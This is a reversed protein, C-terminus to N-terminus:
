SLITDFQFIFTLNLAFFYGHRKLLSNELRLVGNSKLLFYCVKVSSLLPQFGLSISRALTVKKLTASQAEKGRAFARPAIQTLM